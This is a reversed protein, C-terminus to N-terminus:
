KFMACKIETKKTTLIEIRTLRLTLLSKFELALYFFFFCFVFFLRRKKASVFIQFIFLDETIIDKLSM